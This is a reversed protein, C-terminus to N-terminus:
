GIASPRHVSSPRPPLTVHRPSTEPPVSSCAERSTSGSSAGAAGQPEQLRRISQDLLSIESFATNWRLADEAVEFSPSSPPKPRLSGPPSALWQCWERILAIKGQMEESRRLCSALEREKAATQNHM